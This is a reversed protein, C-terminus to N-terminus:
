IPSEHACFVDLGYGAVLGVVDALDFEGSGAEGEDEESVVGFRPVPSAGRRRKRRTRHRFRMIRNANVRIHQSRRIPMRPHIPLFQPTRTKPTHILTSSPSPTPRPHPHHHPRQNTPRPHNHPFKPSRSVPCTCTYQVIPPSKQTSSLLGGREKKLKTAQSTIEQKKTSTKYLKNSDNAYNQSVGYKQQM